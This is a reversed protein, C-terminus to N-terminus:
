VSGDDLGKMKVEFENKSKQADKSETSDEKKYFDMVISCVIFFSHLYKSNDSDHLSDLKKSLTKFMTRIEEHELIGVIAKQVSYRHQLVEIDKAKDEEKM